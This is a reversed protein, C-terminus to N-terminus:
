EVRRLLSMLLFGLNPDIRALEHRSTSIGIAVVGTGTANDNKIKIGYNTLSLFVAPKNEMYNYTTRSRKDNGVSITTPQLPSLPHAYFEFNHIMIEKDNCFIKYALDNNWKEDAFVVANNKPLVRENYTLMSDGAYYVNILLSASQHISDREYNLIKFCNGGLENAKQKLLTYLVPIYANKKKGTAKLTAIFVIQTTDVSPHLYDFFYGVSLNRKSPKAMIEIEQAQVHRLSCAGIIILLAGIRLLPKLKCNTLFNFNLHSPSILTM